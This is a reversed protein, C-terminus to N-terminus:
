GISRRQLGFLGTVVLALAAITLLFMPMASFESALVKPVHTFPSIDQVWQGIQLLEGLLEIVFVGLLAGWSLFTLRPMLGYLAIAIGAMVIIAPLYVMAAALVRPLEYGVNGVSVGYTLGAPVSFAALVVITGVVMILVYGAAWRLRSVPTALVHEARAETEESQMQLTAMIAYVAAIEVIMSIGVTLFGYSVGSTGGLRALLSALQPSAALQEAGTKALNGIMAGLVAFGAAWALLTRRHLRWVLAISSNLRPSARAPGVRPRLLGSGVDRRSSLAFATGTLVIVAGIFLAFISWREDAFPRIQQMWGIPSLWSLGSQEGVDGVARLMYCLGIVVAAIGKATGASETVQAAVGGVAAFTVGVAALSLGLVVSGAVPLGYGILGGAVLAAIVLNAGCTVILSASLTAQRGVVTSGLLDFRGAEEQTRTHRVVFLASGLGVLVASYASWRWATLGAITPAYIRGLLATEAPINTTEFVFPELSAATPLLQKFTAATVVALLAPLVVCVALVLWDWRIILRLLARTGAYANLNM